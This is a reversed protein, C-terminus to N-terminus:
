EYWDAKIKKKTRKLVLNCYNDQLTINFSIDNHNKKFNLIIVRIKLLVYKTNTMNYIKVLKCYTM